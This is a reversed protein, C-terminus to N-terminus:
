LWSGRGWSSAWCEPSWPHPKEQSSARAVGLFPVRPGLLHPTVAGEVGGASGQAARLSVFAGGWEEAVGEGWHLGCDESGLVPRPAPPRRPPAARGGGPRTEEGLGPAAGPLELAWLGLNWFKLGQFGRGGHLSAGM